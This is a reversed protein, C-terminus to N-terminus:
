SGGDAPRTPNYRVISLVARLYYHACTANYTNIAIANLATIEDLQGGASVLTDGAEATDELTSVYTNFNEIEWEPTGGEPYALLDSISPSMNPPTLFLTFTRQGPFDLWPDTAGSTMWTIRSGDPDYDVHQYPAYGQTCSTLPTLNNICIFDADCQHTQCGTTVAPASVACAVAVVTGAASSLALARLKRV